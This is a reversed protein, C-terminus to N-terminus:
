KNREKLKALDAGQRKQGHWSKISHAAANRRYRRRAAVDCLTEWGTTRGPTRPLASEAGPVVLAGFPAPSSRLDRSCARWATFRPAETPSGRRSWFAELEHLRPGCTPSSSIFPLWNLFGMEIRCKVSNALRM